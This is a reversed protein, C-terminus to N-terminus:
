ANLTYTYPPTNFRFRSAVGFVPSAEGNFNSSANDDIRTLCTDNKGRRAAAKALMMENRPRVARRRRLARWGCCRRISAADRREAHFFCNLSPFFLFDDIITNLINIIIAVIWFGSRYVHRAYCTYVFFSFVSHNNYMSVCRQQCPM